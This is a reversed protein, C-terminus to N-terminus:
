SSSDDEDSDFGYSDAIERKRKRDNESDELQVGSIGEETEVDCDNEKDNGMSSSSNSSNLQELTNFIIKIAVFNTQRTDEPVREGFTHDLNAASYAVYDKYEPSHKDYKDCLNLVSIANVM